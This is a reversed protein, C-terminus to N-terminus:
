SRLEKLRNLYHIRIAKASASYALMYEIEKLITRKPDSRSLLMRKFHFNMLVRERSTLNSRNSLIRQEAEELNLRVIRERPIEQIHGSHSPIRGTKM